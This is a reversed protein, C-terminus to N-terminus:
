LWINIGLSETLDNVTSSLALKVDSPQLLDPRNSEGLVYLHGNGYPELSVYGCIVIQEPLMKRLFLDFIAPYTKLQALDGSAGFVVLSLKEGYWSENSVDLAM